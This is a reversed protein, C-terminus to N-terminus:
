GKLLNELTEFLASHEPLHLVDRDKRVLGFGEGYAAGNVVCADTQCESMQKEALRLVAERNGEVEFKWGV